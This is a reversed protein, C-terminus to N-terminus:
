FYIDSWVTSVVHMGVTTSIGFNEPITELMSRVLFTHSHVLLRMLRTVGRALDQELIATINESHTVGTPAVFVKKPEPTALAWDELLKLAERRDKLYTEAGASFSLEVKAKSETMADVLALRRQSVTLYGTTPPQEMKVYPEIDKLVQRRQADLKQLLKAQKHQSSPLSSSKVTLELRTRHILQVLQSLTRFLSAGSYQSNRNSTSFTGRCRLEQYCKYATQLDRGKIAGQLENMKREVIMPIEPHKKDSRRSITASTPQPTPQYRVSQRPKALRNFFSGSPQGYARKPQYQLTFGEFTSRCRGLHDPLNISTPAPPTVAGCPHIRPPRRHYSRVFARQFCKQWFNPFSSQLQNAAVSANERIAPGTLAHCIINPRM